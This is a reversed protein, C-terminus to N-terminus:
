FLRRDITIRDNAEIVDSPTLKVTRPKAGATRAATGGRLTGRRDLGGALEVAEGLTLGPQWIYVGVHRVSGSMYFTQIEPVTVIDGDQLQFAQIRRAENGAIGHHHEM